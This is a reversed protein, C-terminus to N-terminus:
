VTAVWEGRRLRDGFLCDLDPEPAAGMWLPVHVRGVTDVTCTLETVPPQHPLEDTGVRVPTPWAEAVGGHFDSGHQGRLHEASEQACFAYADEVCVEALNAVDLAWEILPCPEREASQCCVVPCPFDLHSCRM